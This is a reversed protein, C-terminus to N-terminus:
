IPSKRPRGPPRPPIGLVKRRYRRRGLVNKPRSIGTEPDVWVAGVLRYYEAQPNMWRPDTAPTDRGLRTLGYVAYPIGYPSPRTGVREVLGLRKLYMIYTSVTKSKPPMYEFGLFRLIDAMGTRIEPVTAPERALISRIMFGVLAQPVPPRGL